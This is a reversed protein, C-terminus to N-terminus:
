AGRVVKRAIAWMHSSLRNDSLFIQFPGGLREWDDVLVQRLFPQTSMDFDGSQVKSRVLEADLLGPTTTEIVELGHRELLQTLSEPNFYNLHEHDFSESVSGLVTTEFGGANPCSLVLLGGPRLLTVCASIFDSPAFLHEIVEFSAIVDASGPELAVQEVPQELVRLGRSRCVAALDPTPEVAILQRFLGLRSIEECFTGFGAGVEVMTDTDVGHRRCLEALREARPRFIKERRASESAPFIYKAWYAYNESSAYFQQLVEPTPRPSVYITSCESCEIYRLGVKEFAPRYSGSDCAPCPVDVFKDEHALLSAIDAAICRAQDKKLADPRIENETLTGTNKQTAV